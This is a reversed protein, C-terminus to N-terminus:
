SVISLAHAIVQQVESSLGATAGVISATAAWKGLRKLAVKIRNEDPVAIQVQEELTALSDEVDDRDDDEVTEVALLERTKTIVDALPEGFRNRINITTGASGVVIPSGQVPGNFTTNFVNTPVLPLHETPRDTRIWNQVESRGSPTLRVFPPYLDSITQGEGEILGDQGLDRLLRQIQPDPLDESHIDKLIQSVEGYGLPNGARADDDWLASLFRARREEYERIDEPTPM